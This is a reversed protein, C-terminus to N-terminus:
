PRRYQYRRKTTASRPTDRPRPEDGSRPVAAIARPIAPMTRDIPATPRSPTVMVQTDRQRRRAAQSESDSGAPPTAEIENAQRRVHRVPWRSKIPAHSRGWEPTDASRDEDDAGTLLLCACPRGPGIRVLSRVGDHGDVAVAAFEGFLGHRRRGLTMELEEAPSAAPPLPRERELVATMEGTTQFSIEDPGALPDDTHWRLEHGARSARRALKALAIRDVGERDSSGRKSLAVQRDGPEVAALALDTQQDVM